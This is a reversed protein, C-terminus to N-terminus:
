ARRRIAECADCAPPRGVEREFSTAEVMTIPRWDDWVFTDSGPFPMHRDCAIAGRQSWYLHEHAHGSARDRGGTFTAWATSTSQKKM